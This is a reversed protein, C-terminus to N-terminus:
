LSRESPAVAQMPDDDGGLGDSVNVCCGGVHQLIEVIGEVSRTGREDESLHLVGYPLLDVAVFQCLGDVRGM